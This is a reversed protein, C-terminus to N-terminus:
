GRARHRGLQVDVGVADVVPFVSEQFALEGPPFLFVGLNRNPHPHQATAGCRVQQAVGGRGAVVWCLQDDDAAAAASTEGSEEESGGALGDHGVCAAGHGDDMSVVLHVLEGAGASSRADIIGAARSLHNELRIRSPNIGNM